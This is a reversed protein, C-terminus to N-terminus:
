FVEASGDARFQITLRRLVGWRFEIRYKSASVFRPRVPLDFAVKVPKGTDPHILVTEYHGPNFPKARSVFERPSIGRVRPAPTAPVAPAVLKKEEAPVPPPDGADTPVPAPARRPAPVPMALRATAPPNRPIVLNVFPARVVVAPGVEVHVFPVHVLVDARALAPVALLILAYRM